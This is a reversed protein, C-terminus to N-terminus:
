IRGASERIILEADVVTYNDLKIRGTEFAIAMEVMEIIPVNLTTLAPKFYPAADINDFGVVSIDGPVSLGYDLLAKILGAASQDDHIVVATIGHKKRLKLVQKLRAMGEEFMNGINQTPLMFDDDLGLSHKESFEHFISPFKTDWFKEAAIMRHGSSYLYELIGLYAKKRDIGILYINELDTGAEKGYYPYDTFIIRMDSFPKKLHQLTEKTARGIVIVSGVGMGKLKLLSSTIDNQSYNHVFYPRGCESLIKIGRYLGTYYNYNKETFDLLFGITDKQGQILSQAWHNPAFGMKRAYGLVRQETEEAIKYERAKGSLCVSVTTRSLKLKKALEKMNAVRM